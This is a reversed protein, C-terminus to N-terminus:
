IIQFGWMISYVILFVPLFATEGKQKFYYVMTVKYATGIMAVAIVMFFFASLTSVMFGLVIMMKLDALGSFFDGEDALGEMLLWGYM